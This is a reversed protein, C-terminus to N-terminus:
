SKLSNFGQLKMVLAQLAQYNRMLGGSVKGTMDAEDTCPPFFFFHALWMQLSVTIGVALVTPVAVKYSKLLQRGLGEIGVIAYCPMVHRLMADCLLDVVELWGHVSGRCVQVM